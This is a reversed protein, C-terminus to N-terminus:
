GQHQHHGTALLASEQSTLLFIVVFVVTRGMHLGELSAPLPVQYICNEFELFGKELRMLGNEAHLMKKSFELDVRHNKFLNVSSM